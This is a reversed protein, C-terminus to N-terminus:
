THPQKHPWTCISGIQWGIPSQIIWSNIELNSIFYGDSCGIFEETRWEDRFFEFFNVWYTEASFRPKEPFVRFFQQVQFAWLKVERVGNRSIKKKFNPSITLLVWIHLKNPCIRGGFAVSIFVFSAATRLFFGSFNCIKFGWYRSRGSETESSKKKVQTNKQSSSLSLVIKQLNQVFIYQFHRSHRPGRKKEGFFFRCFYFITTWLEPGPFHESVM